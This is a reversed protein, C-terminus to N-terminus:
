GRKTLFGHTKFGNEGEALYYRFVKGFPHQAGGLKGEARLRMCLEYMEPETVVEKGTELIGVVIAMAQPTMKWLRAHRNVVYHVHPRVTVKAEARGVVVQGKAARIRDLLSETPLEGLDVESFKTETEDFVKKFDDLDCIEPSVMAITDRVIYLEKLSQADRVEGLIELVAENSLQM